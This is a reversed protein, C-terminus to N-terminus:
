PVLFQLGSINENALVRPWEVRMYTSSPAIGRSGIGIGLTGSAGETWAASSSDWLARAQKGSIGNRKIYGETAIGLADDGLTKYGHRGAMISAQEANMGTWLMRNAGSQLPSKLLGYGRLASQGLLGGSAALSWMELNSSLQDFTSQNDGVYMAAKALGMRAGRFFKGGFDEDRYGPIYRSNFEFADWMADTVTDKASETPNTAERALDSNLVDNAEDIVSRGGDMNGRDVSDTKQDNAPQKVPPKPKEMEEVVM